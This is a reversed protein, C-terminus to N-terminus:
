CYMASIAQRAESVADKGGDLITLNKETRLWTKQRKAYRVTEVITTEMAVDLPIEGARYKSM